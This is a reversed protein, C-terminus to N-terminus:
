YTKGMHTLPTRLYLQVRSIYSVKTRHIGSIHDTVHRRQFCIALSIIQAKTAPLSMLHDAAEKNLIEKRHRETIIIEM